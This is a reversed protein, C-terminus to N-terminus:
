MKSIADPRSGGRNKTTVKAYALLIDKSYLNDTPCKYFAKLLLFFKTKNVWKNGM